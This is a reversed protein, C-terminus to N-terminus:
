VNVSVMFNTGYITNSSCLQEATLTHSWYVTIDVRINPLALQISPASHRPQSVAVVKQWISFYGHAEGHKTQPMMSSSWCMLTQRRVNIQSRINLAWRIYILTLLSDDYASLCLVQFSWSLRMTLYVDIKVIRWKTYQIQIKFHSAKIAQNIIMSFKM